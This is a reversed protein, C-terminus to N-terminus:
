GSVAVWGIERVHNTRCGDSVYPAEVVFGTRTVNRVQVRFDITDGRCPGRFYADSIAATVKPPSTFTKGFSVSARSMNGAIAMASNGVDVVQGTSRSVTTPNFCVTGAANCYENARMRVAGLDGAKRQFADSENLPGPTNGGPPTVNTPPTWANIHNYALLAFVAIALFSINKISSNITM